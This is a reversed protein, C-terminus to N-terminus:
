EHQGGKTAALAQKANLVYGHWREQVRKSLPNLTVFPGLAEALADRQKTVEQFKCLMEDESYQDCAAKYHDRQKTLAEVLKAREGLDPRDRLTRNIVVQNDHNAKWKDREAIIVDRHALAMDALRRQNAADERAENLERELQKSKAEHEMSEFHRANSSSIAATLSADLNNRESTLANLERELQRAFTTMNQLDMWARITQEDTRPTDSETNMTRENTEQNNREKGMAPMYQAVRQRTGM